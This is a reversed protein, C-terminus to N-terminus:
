RSVAENRDDSSGNPQLRRGPRLSEWRDLVLSVAALVGAEVLLWAFERISGNSCRLFLTVPLWATWRTLEPMLLSVDLLVPELVLCGVALFPIGVPVARWLPPIRSVVLGVGIMVAVFATYGALTYWGGGLWPLVAAGWLLLPLMAGTLEPLLLETVSRVSRLRRAPGTELWGGLDVTLYLGWVLTAIAAAGLLMRGTQAKMMASVNMPEGRLTQLRVEVREATVSIEEMRQALGEESLGSDRLFEGAIFPSMLELVCAAATEEVLPYVTSAPGIKVTLIGDTDLERLRRTFDEEVVLGCDWSGSLIKREMTAEDTPVFTVIQGSREMLLQELAEGGQRPLGLGGQVPATDGGRLSFVVVLTLIVAAAAAILGGPSRLRRFLTLRLEQLFFSM